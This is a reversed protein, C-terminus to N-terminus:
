KYKIFTKFNYEYMIQIQVNVPKSTYVTIQYETSTHSCVFIKVHPALHKIALAVGAILGGGGVPVCVADLSRADAGTPSLAAM